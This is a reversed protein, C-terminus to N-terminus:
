GNATPGEASDGGVDQGAVVAVTDDTMVQGSKHKFQGSFKRPARSTIQQRNVVVLKGGANEVPTM